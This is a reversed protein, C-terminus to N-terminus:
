KKIVKRRTLPTMYKQRYSKLKQTQEDRIKKTEKYKECRDQCGPYRDECGQCCTFNIM